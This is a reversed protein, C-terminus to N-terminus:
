RQKKQSVDKEDYIEGFLEELVDEMSIVGINKQSDDRVIFLHQNYAQFKQLLADAKIRHNVFIPRTMFEKVYISEEDAAIHRLLIRHEVVGVIDTPDKGYVGIRSFRSDIIEKKLEGLTKDAPLSFLQSISKMMQYAKLDNLKFVRNCLVEEDIEVTGADRGLQLMMKIEEETVRPLKARKMFPLASAMILEVLPRMVWVLAALPRAILLSVSTKYREGVTKPIVEGLIIISFTMLASAIALWQDGYLNAVMEGVFISGVINVTNNLIVIAGVTANINEKIYLLAKASQRHEEAMTRARVLPLSLIAAESMSCLASLVIVVTFFILLSFM